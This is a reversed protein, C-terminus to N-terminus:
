FAGVEGQFAGPQFDPNIVPAQLGLAQFSFGLDVEAWMHGLHLGAANGCFPSVPRQLDGVPVGLQFLIL